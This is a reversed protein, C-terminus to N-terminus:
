CYMYTLGNKEATNETNSKESDSLASDCILRVISDDRNRYKEAFGELHKRFGDAIETEGVHDAMLVLYKFILEWPHSYDDPQSIFKKSKKSIERLIDTTEKKSTYDAFFCYWAKVWVFLAFRDNIQENASIKKFQTMIKDAGFYKPALSKYTDKDGSSILEHLYYSFTKNYNKEDGSLRELAEEFLEKAQDHEGCFAYCQALQSLTMGYHIENLGSHGMMESVLDEAWKEYEKTKQTFELAEAYKRSDLLSVSYINRLEFYGELPIFKAKDACLSYYKQTKEFMGNHNSVITYCYNIWFDIEESFENEKLKESLKQLRDLIYEAKVLDYKTTYLYDYVKKEANILSKPETNIRNFIRESWFGNYYSSVWASRHEYIDYMLSFAGFYDSEAAREAARSYIFDDDCYYWVMNKSHGTFGKLMDCFDTATSNDRNFTEAMYTCVIDSLYLFNMEKNTKEATKTYQISMTNNQFNTNDSLESAIEGLMAVYTNPTTVKWNQTSSETGIETQDKDIGKGKPYIRTALYLKINKDSVIPNNILLNRLLKNMMHIYRNSGVSDSLFNGKSDDYASVGKPTSLMAFLYYKGNKRSQLYEGLKAKIAEKTKEVDATNSGDNNLHLDKPFVTGVEDCIAKLFIGISEAEKDSNEGQFLVGGILKKSNKGYQVCDEVRDEFIGSEDLSITLM